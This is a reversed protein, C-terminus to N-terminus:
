GPMEFVKNMGLLTATKLLSPSVTNWQCPIKKEKGVLWFSLLLQLVITDVQTVNNAEFVINKNRNLADQLTKKFELIAGRNLAQECDIVIQDQQSVIKM